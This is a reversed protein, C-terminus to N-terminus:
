NLNVDRFAGCYKLCLHDSLRFHMIKLPLAMHCTDSKASFVLSQTEIFPPHFITACIHFIMHFCGFMFPPYLCPSAAYGGIKAINASFTTLELPSSLLPRQGIFSVEAFESMSCIYPIFTELLTHTNNSYCQYCKVSLTCSVIIMFERM